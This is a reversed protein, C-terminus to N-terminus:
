EPAGGFLDDTAFKLQAIRDRILDVSQGRFRLVDEPTPDEPISEMIGKFVAVPEALLEGVLASRSCGFRAALYSVDDVLQAPLSLSLKRVSGSM